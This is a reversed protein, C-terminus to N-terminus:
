KRKYEKELTRLNESVEKRRNIAAAELEIDREQQEIMDDLLPNYSLRLNSSENKKLAIDKTIREIYNKNKSVSRVPSDQQSSVAISSTM